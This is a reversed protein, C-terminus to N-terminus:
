RGFLGYALSLYRLAAGFRMVKTGATVDMSGGLRKPNNIM